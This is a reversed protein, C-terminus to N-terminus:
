SGDKQDSSQRGYNGSDQGLTRKKSSITGCMTTADVRRAGEFKVWGSKDESLGNYCNVGAPFDQAGGNSGNALNRSSADVGL